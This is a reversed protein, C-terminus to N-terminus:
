LFNASTFGIPQSNHQVSSTTNSLNVYYTSQLDDHEITPVGITLEYDELILKEYNQISHTKCKLYVPHDSFDANITQQILDVVQYEDHILTITNFTNFVDDSDMHEGSRSYCLFKLFNSPTQTDEISYKALAFNEVRSTNVMQNLFGFHPNVFSAYDFQSVDFSLNFKGKGILAFPIKSVSKSNKYIVEEKYSFFTVHNKDVAIGSTSLYVEGKKSDIVLPFNISSYINVRFDGDILQDNGFINKMKLSYFNNWISSINPFENNSGNSSKKLLFYNSGLKDNNYKWNRLKISESNVIDIDVNTEYNSIKIHKKKSNDKSTSIKGTFSSLYNENEPSGIEIPVKIFFYKKSTEFEYDVLKLIPWSNYYNIDSYTPEDPTQSSYFGVPFNDTLKYFHNYSFGRDDRIDIYVTNKNYFKELFDNDNDTGKVRLGQNKSSGYLATIDLYALVKEKQFRNNFKQILKEEETLTNPLILKQIEFIHNSDKLLQLNPEHGIIDLVVEIGALESGGVFKGIQCGADVILPHFEDTDDFFLKELYTDNPLASFQLGLSDSNATLNTGNKANIKDQNDKIVKLINDPEWLSDSVNINGSGNILSDKKIGRYIFVKVPFGLTFSNIPLLAMNLIQSNSTPMALVLSKTIAIAPSNANVSFKSELNYRETTGIDPLQGFANEILQNSQISNEGTFYFIKSM